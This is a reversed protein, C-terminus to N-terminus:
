GQRFFRAHDEGVHSRAFRRQQRVIIKEIGRRIMKIGGLNKVIAVVLLRVFAIDIRNMERIKMAEEFIAVLIVTAHAAGALRM